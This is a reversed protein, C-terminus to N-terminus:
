KESLGLLERARKLYRYDIESRYYDEEGENTFSLKVPIARGIIETLLFALEAWGKTATDLKTQLEALKKEAAARLRQEEESPNATKNVALIEDCALLLLQKLLIPSGAPEKLLAEKVGAWDVM